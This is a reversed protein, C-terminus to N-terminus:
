FDLLYKPYRHKHKTGARAICKKGINAGKLSTYNCLALGNVISSQQRQDLLDAMGTPERNIQDRITEPYGDLLKSGCHPCFKWNMAVILKGCCRGYGTMQRSWHRSAYKVIRDTHIPLIRGTRSCSQSQRMRLMHLGYALTKWSLNPVM